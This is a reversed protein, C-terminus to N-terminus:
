VVQAGSGFGGVSIDSPPKENKCPIIFLFGVSAPKQQHTKHGQCTHTSYQGTIIAKGSDFPRVGEIEWMGFILDIARVMVIEIEIENGNPHPNWRDKLKFTVTERNGHKGVYFLAVSLDHRSPGGVIEFMNSAM